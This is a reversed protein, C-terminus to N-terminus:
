HSSKSKPVVLMASSAPDRRGECGEVGTLGAPTPADAELRPEARAMTDGLMRCSIRSLPSWGRMSSARSCHSVVAMPCNNLVRGDGALAEGAPTPLAAEM